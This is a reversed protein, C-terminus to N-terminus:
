TDKAHGVELGGTAQKHDHNIPGPLVEPPARDMASCGALEILTEEYKRWAVLTAETGSM